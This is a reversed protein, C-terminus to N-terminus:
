QSFLSDQDHKTNVMMPLDSKNSKDVSFSTIEEISDPNGSSKIQYGGVFTHPV